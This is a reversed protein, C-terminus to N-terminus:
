PMKGGKVRHTDAAPPISLGQEGHAALDSPLMAGPATEGVSPGSDADALRATLETLHTAQARRDAENAQLWANLQEIQATLDKIHTGQATRDAENARLEADLQMIRAGLQNMHVLRAARDAESEQLKASFDNMHFLRADRDAESETLKASLENMRRLRDARDAESEQLKATLDEVERLRAAENTRRDADVEQLRAGLDNIQVLRDARDAESDKLLDTLSHIQLLRNHRDADSVQLLASLDKTQQLRALSDERVFRLRPTATDILAHAGADLGQADFEFQGDNDNQLFQTLASRVSAPSITKVCPADVYYCDWGCGFCPLPQVVSLSRRAVPSFRPWTGGGFIGVLPRGLAAALHLAGTDNGFYFRAADLLAAVVPMEGSQGLWLAPNGGAQQAALRVTELHEREGVHGFLLSRVGHERELWALTTGYHEAPWHKISVNATGAAACLVFQGPTLGAEAVIGAARAKADAPVTAQPWWRPVERGLLTSALYLNKEWEHQAPEMLIREPYLGAWDVPVVANLAERVLPDTMGKGVSIRRAQPLFAAVASELWTQADCAAVLCDPAFAQVTERLHAFATPNDGPGERYPNCDTVLWHIGDGELLPIIDAQTKRILVAVEAQPWADRVFRPVPEFLFLDGYADPRLFLIRTPALPPTLVTKPVPPPQDAHAPVVAPAPAPRPGRRVRARSFFDECAERTLAALDLLRRREVPEAERVARLIAAPDDLSPVVTLGLQRAVGAVKDSRAFVAVRAGMWAGTLSAHYRTVFLSGVGEWGALLAHPTRARAYDPTWLPALAQVDPPLLGHLRTESGNIPRVEQALWRVRWDPGAARVLADLQELRFQTPDEFNMVLGLTGPEPPAFEMSEMALHGLDAHATAQGPTTLSRLMDVSAEDRMWLREAQGILTRMQPYDATSRENVGVGLYFMPVGYQRCWAAEDCLHDLFWTEGGTAQFPTDGLGLWADCREISAARTLANYPLWEIEPFRRSQSRIDQATCCSLTASQLWGARAAELFGALMLDDGVNGSGFFHHGIHVHLKPM